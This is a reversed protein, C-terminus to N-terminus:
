SPTNLITSTDGGKDPSDCVLFTREIPDFEVLKGSEPVDEPFIAALEPIFAEITFDEVTEPFCLHDDLLPADVVVGFTRV